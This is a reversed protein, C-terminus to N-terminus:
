ASKARRPLYADLLGAVEALPQPKGIYYGQVETCGLERVQEMQEATEVGEATAIMGLSRAMDTVARVIEFAGPAKSLDHIFSRDIKLKDFPFRRLYSLSSYGTGFDDMSIKVDLARLRHLTALTSQTNQMMVSETIELELRGAPLGSAALAGIVTSLLNPSAVQIASLNVAVKIHGPWHVADACAQRLVWEGIPVILGIEEAVPIFDGPRVLGRRPHNWRILAECCPIRSDNLNLIPQYHLTFQGEALALRLENELERRAKISADMEPEFFVFSGRGNAKARYLATDVNRLLEDPAKADDPAIAVGISTETMVAHGFVECPSRVAECIRSALTTPEAMNELRPLILAFEDGGVRAVTVCEDVCGLLRQAVRKLLEDGIQHGLTDNVSKFNDLDLYFVAVREGQALNALAEALRGRLLLRNPLDTLADHHAMHAIKKEARRRETIDEHTVVWGGCAMPRSVISITRGDPLDAMRSYTEGKSILAGLMAAYKETEGIFTNTKARCELLSRLSMGPTIQEPDLGYLKIYRRNFVMLRSEADFMLLGQSMNNLAADMLLNQEALRAERDRLAATREEVLRELRRNLKEIGDATQVSSRKIQL